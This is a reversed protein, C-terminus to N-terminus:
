EFKDDGTFIDAYDINSNTRLKQPADYTPDIYRSSKKIGETKKTKVYDIASKTDKLGLNIWSTLLKNLFDYNLNNYISNTIAYDVAFNILELDCEHNKLVDYMKEFDKKTLASGHTVITEFPTIKQMLNIFDDESNIVSIPLTRKQYQDFAVTMLFLKFSKVDNYNEQIQKLKSDNLQYCIMIKQNFSQNKKVGGDIKANVINIVLSDNENTENINIIQKQQLKVLNQSIVNPKNVGVFQSLEIKGKNNFQEILYLVGNEEITLSRNYNITECEINIKM